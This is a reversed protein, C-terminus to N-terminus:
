EFTLNKDHRIMYGKHEWVGREFYSRRGSSPTDPFLDDRRKSAWGDGAQAPDVEVFLLEAGPGQAIQLSRGECDRAQSRVMQENMAANAAALFFGNEVARTVLHADYQAQYRQAQAGPSRGGYFLHFHVQVGANGYQRLVEPYRIDHCIAMSCRAGDFEFVACHEGPAVEYCDRDVLQLKDYSALLEGRRGIAVANNYWRGCRKFYQGIVAGISRRACQQQVGIVADHVAAPDLSDLVLREFGLYGTLVCEPFLVIDAGGQQARELTDLVAATNLELSPTLEIQALAIRM